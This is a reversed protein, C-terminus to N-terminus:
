EADRAIRASLQQPLDSRRCVSQQPVYRVTGRFHEVLKRGRQWARTVEEDGIDHEATLELRTAIDSRLQNKVMEPRAKMGSCSSSSPVTMGRAIQCSKKM